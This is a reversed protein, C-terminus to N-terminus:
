PNPAQPKKTLLYIQFEEEEIDQRHSSQLFFSSPGTRRKGQSEKKLHEDWETAQAEQNYLNKIVGRM